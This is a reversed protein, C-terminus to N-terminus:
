DGIRGAMAEDTVFDRRAQLRAYERAHELDGQLKLAKDKVGPLLGKKEAVYAVGVTTAIFGVAAAAGYTLGRIILIM